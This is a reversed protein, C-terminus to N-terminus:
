RPHAPAEDGIRASTSRYNSQLLEAAREAVRLGMDRTGVVLSGGAAVDETRFGERWVSRVANRIAAAEQGLGFSEQLMMSLSLIQGVPNARDSGALDHAAGHNTQYAANGALNFNGSFSVGRSGLLAAGIDALVDGFLNPAAVVDFTQPASILQYAMLDIDIMRYRVGHAQAASQACRQWLSSIAPIGSEKWVVALDGRRQKALRASAQLFRGVQDETYAFHHLASRKGQPCQREEWDGQYIGGTNERTALIDLGHVVGPKLPSAQPVGDSIQLPSIKFFLDFCTRLEYVFRRGGAGHMIAGGRAFVDECFKVVGEPLSTGHIHEAERGIPLGDCIELTLGPFRVADLVDLAARVVEPGIGEGQLVGIVHQERAARRPSSPANLCETWRPGDGTSSKLM